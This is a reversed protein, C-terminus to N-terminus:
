KCVKQLSVMAGCVKVHGVTGVCNESDDPVIIGWVRKSGEVKELSWYKKFEQHLITTRAVPGKCTSKERSSISGKKETEAKSIGIWVESRM